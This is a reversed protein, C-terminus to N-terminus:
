ARSDGQYHGLAPQPAALYSKLFIAGIEQDSFNQFNYKPKMQPQIDFPIKAGKVNQLIEKDSTIKEWESIKHKLQGARSNNM